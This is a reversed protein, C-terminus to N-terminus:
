IKKKVRLMCSLHFPSFACLAIVRLANNHIPICPLISCHGKKIHFAQVNSLMQISSSFAGSQTTPELFHVLCPEKEESLNVDESWLVQMMVLVNRSTVKKQKNLEQWIPPLELCAKESQLAGKFVNAGTGLHSPPKYHQGQSYTRLGAQTITWCGLKLLPAVYLQM